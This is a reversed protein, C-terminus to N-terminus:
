GRRHILFPQPLVPFLVPVDSPLVRIHTEVLQFTSDALVPIKLLDPVDASIEASCCIVSFEASNCTDPRNANRGPVALVSPPGDHHQGGFSYKGAKPCPKPGASFAQTLVHFSHIHSRGLGTRRLAQRTYSRGSFPIIIPPIPHLARWLQV